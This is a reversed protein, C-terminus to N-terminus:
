KDAHLSEIKEKAIAAFSEFESQNLGLDQAAKTFGADFAMASDRMDTPQIRKTLEAHAQKTFPM